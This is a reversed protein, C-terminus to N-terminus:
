ENATASYDIGIISIRLKPRKDMIEKAVRELWAVTAKLDMLKLTEPNRWRRIERM